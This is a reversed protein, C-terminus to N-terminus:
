ANRGTTKIVDKKAQGGTALAGATTHLSKAKRAARLTTVPAACRDAWALVDALKWATVNGSLKV